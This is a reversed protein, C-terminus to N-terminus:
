SARLGDLNKAALKLTKAGSYLEGVLRWAQSGDSIHVYVRSKPPLITGRYQNGTRRLTITRDLDEMTPHVLHVELTNPRVFLSSTSDLTVTITAERAHNIALQISATLGLRHAERDRAELLQTAMSIEGYDDVVLSPIPWALLLTIFGGIVAAAPPFIIFWPWFQRYWPENDLHQM